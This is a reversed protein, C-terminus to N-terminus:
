WIQLNTQLDIGTQLMVQERIRAILKLCDDSTAKPNVTLLSPQEPSLFAGGETIGALGIDGILRQVTAGDPDVFPQVVQWRGQPIKANRVIWMKQMRKTLTTIDTAKLKFRVALVLRGRLGSRRHSFQAQEATIWETTGDVALVEIAQIVSGIDHGGASANCVVAGGVTGPVGLLSELGSLGAGVAHTVAHSLKAGAGATLEDGEVSLQGLEAATLSIVLGDFGSERVLLNSGGGLIRVQIGKQYAASVLDILEKRSTPEAFYRAPGGIGLWLYSDLPHDYQILHAVSSPFDDSSM